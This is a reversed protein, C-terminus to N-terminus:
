NLKDERNHGCNRESANELRRKEAKEKGRRSANNCPHWGCSSDDTVNDVNSYTKM